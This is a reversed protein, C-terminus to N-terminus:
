NYLQALCLANEINDRSIFIRAPCGHCYDGLKCENCIESKRLLTKRITHLVISNHWIEKFSVDKVNGASIRLLQCPYVDGYPGISVTSIGAECCGKEVKRLLLYKKIYKNKLLCGEQIKPIQYRLPASNGNLKSMISTSFRIFNNSLQSGKIVMRQAEEFNGQSVLSALSFPINHRKLLKLAHMVKTKATANKTVRTYAKNTVGYFGIQLRLLNLAKISEINNENILSANTNVTLGFGKKRAYEAIQFFDDRLFVEGGCFGLLFCGLSALDDIVRCIQARTLEKRDEVVRYCHGCNFNCKYTIEFLAGVPFLRNRRLHTAIDV